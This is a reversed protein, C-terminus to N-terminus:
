RSKANDYRRLSVHENHQMMEMYKSCEVVCTNSM